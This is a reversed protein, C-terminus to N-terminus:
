DTETAVASGLPVSAIETEGFLLRAETLGEPVLWVMTRDASRGTDTGNFQSDLIRRMFREGVLSLTAGEADVLRFNHTHWNFRDSGDVNNTALGTVEVVVEALLHGPLATLTSTMLNADRGDELQAQRFRRVGTVEFSAFSAAIEEVGLAPIPIEGEFRVEGGVRLTASLLGKPVRFVGNWHIDADTTPFDRPRRGSLTRAQLTLQGWYPYGALPALESGDPLILRIDSANVQVRELTESWPGDFVARVDLLVHGPVHVVEVLGAPRMQREQWNIASDYARATLSLPTLDVQAAAPLAALTLSAAVALAPFSLNRTM